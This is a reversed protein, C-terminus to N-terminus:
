FNLWLLKQSYHYRIKSRELSIFVMQNKIVKQLIGFPKSIFNCTLCWSHICKNHLDNTPDHSYIACDVLAKQHGKISVGPVNNNNIDM